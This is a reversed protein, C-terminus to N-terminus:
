LSSCKVHSLYGMHKIWNSCDSKKIKNLGARVAKFLLDETKAKRKKLYSKLKSWAMEIPNMEPSYPPLYVIDIKNKELLEKTKATKHSSLNDMILTQNPKLEPLLFKEVYTEFAPADITDEIIMPAIIRSTTIAAVLTYRKNKYECRSLRAREGKKSRLYTPLM